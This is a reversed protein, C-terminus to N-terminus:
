LRGVASAVAGMVNAAPVREETRGDKRYLTSIELPTVAHGGLDTLLNCFRRGPDDALLCFSRRPQCGNQQAAADFTAMIEQSVRRGEATEGPLFKSRWFVPVGDRLLVVGLTDNYWSVVATDGDGGIRSRFANLLGSNVPEVWVPILGASEFLAEYQDIIKRQTVATMVTVTGEDGRNVVQFDVQLESPDHPMIKKLKWRIMECAEQKNKWTQDLEMMLVRVAMDPLSLAVRNESTHLMNRLESLLATFIGPECVHVERASLQVTAPKFPVFLTRELLPLAGRGNLLACGIGASTIEMGIIRNNLFFM